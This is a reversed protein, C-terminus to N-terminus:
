KRLIIFVSKWLIQIDLRLSATQIYELDHVLKEQYDDMTADPNIIQALGTIGPRVAHRADYAPFKEKCQNVFALQEPRPGVWSMDGRLINWIQPLEDLRTQRLFKGIGPLVMGDVKVMGARPNNHYKKLSRIKYLYFKCGGMGVRYHRFVLSFGGFIPYVVFVPLLLVLAFPIVMLTFTLDFLRKSHSNAYSSIM